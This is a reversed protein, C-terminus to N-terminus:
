ASPFRGAGTGGSARWGAMAHTCDEDMFGGSARYLLFVLQQVRRQTWLEAPGLQVWHPSPAHGVPEDRMPARSSQQMTVAM